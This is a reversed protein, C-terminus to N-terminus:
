RVKLRYEKIEHPADEWRITKFQGVCSRGPTTDKYSTIGTVYGNYFWVIKYDHFGFGAGTVCYQWAENQGEMQRDRPSGMIELVKSKDDNLNILITKKDLTGCASLIITCIFLYSVLKSIKM